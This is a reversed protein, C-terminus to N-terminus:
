VETKVFFCTSCYNKFNIIKINYLEYNLFGYVQSVDVPQSQSRRPIANSQRRPSPCPPWRTAAVGEGVPVEEQTSGRFFIKNKTIFYCWIGIVLVTITNFGKM